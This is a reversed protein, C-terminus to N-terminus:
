SGGMALDNTLPQFAIIHLLGSNSYIYAYNGVFISLHSDVNTIGLNALFSNLTLSKSDTSTIPFSGNFPNAGQQLFATQVSNNQPAVPAPNPTGSGTGNGAGTTNSTPFTCTGPDQFIDGTGNNAFVPSGSQNLAANTISLGYQGNNSYTGNILSVTTCNGTADVGDTGNNTATVTDLFINGGAQLNAGFTQNGDLSVNSLFVNGPTTVELGRGTQDTTSGSTQNNFNSNAISIDGGANLSAGYLTNNSATTLSIAIGGTTNVRLGYGHFTPTGGSSLTVGNNNSFTSNIIAVDGTADITAGILRNDNAQVNNLAVSGGSNILLGTDDIFGPSATTNANFISDSIAIDGGSQLSAGWLFNDSATVGALDIADPTIIQLGYGLFTTSAGSGKMAKTGSFFSNSISVRGGADIHAGTERNNNALVNLLAVSGDTMVDLGTGQRRGNAPNSFSSNAIAVDGKARIIAGATKNRDFKSNAITVKGGANIEAGAGNVSNTVNVNVLTIDNQSFLTLGTGDTKNITINNIQLSGGWPNTGTGILIPITFSSTGAPDVTNNTTNWGGTVTLDSNRINSLDYTPSNFDISTEGGNYAGQQVYITGAGQYTTSGSLFTLLATFSPFSPTCGNAGPTPAQGSPCWVPDSTTAIASAADQTALPQAQGQADLVTVTTNDPVQNLVSSDPTPSAVAPAPAAQETAPTAAVDQSSSNGQSGVETPAEDPTSTAEVSTETAISVTETTSADPTSTAETAVQTPASAPEETAPDPTSTAKTAAEADDSKVQAVGDSSSTGSAETTPADPPKGDDAYVVTPSLAGLVLVAIIALSLFSSRTKGAM